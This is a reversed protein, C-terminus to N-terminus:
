NVNFDDLYYFVIYSQFIEKSKVFINGPPGTPCDDTNFSAGPPGQIGKIGDIGAAGPPGRPGAPGESGPSGQM